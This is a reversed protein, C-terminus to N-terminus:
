TRRWVTYAGPRSLNARQGSFCENRVTTAGVYVPKTRDGDEQHDGVVGKRRAAAAPEDADVDEEHQGSKQDAAVDEAPERVTREREELEVATAAAADDRREGHHQDRRRREGEEDGRADEEIAEAAMEDGARGEGRVDQQEALAAVEVGGGLKLREEMEPREADLLLEVDEPRRQEQQRRAQPQLTGEEHQREDGDGEHHVHAPRRVMRGLVEVEQLAAEPLEQGAARERE